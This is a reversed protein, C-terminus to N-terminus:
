DDSMCTFEDCSFWLFGGSIEDLQEESLDLGEGKAFELLEKASKFGKLRARQEDTLNDYYSKLDM